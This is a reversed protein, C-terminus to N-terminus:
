KRGGISMRNNKPKEADYKGSVEKRGYLEDLEAANPYPARQTASHAVRLNNWLRNDPNSDESFRPDPVMPLRDMKTIELSIFDFDEVVKGLMLYCGLGKFPYHKLSNPFHVTDFYGGNVDIWTGFNMKTKGDRNQIPVDKISILYGVMRVVKNIHQPLDATYVHGRYNTKLLNFPSVSVPYGLSEIEDFADEYMDTTEEIEFSYRVPEVEFLSLATKKKPEKHFFRKAEIIMRGKGGEINRLAGAYIAYSIDDFNWETRRLINLMDKFPGSKERENCLQQIAKDSLHKIQDLGLYITNGELRANARSKNIEPAEITAGLLRAENIYVEPRYFGGNNNIVATIFELPYYAKLYLSQYSEVAYSASHSKCFSYGAFSAIQRYVEDVVKRDYGLAECNNFFQDKVKDMEQQSRSKGSMGRRLVDAEDLGLKAFHHAIKIVDEQYVMVGYTDSLQEEFVKHFYQIKKPDRHREVYERMMGSQAVGPRIISSAAVLTEYDNCRLRRLLGRMAPSEIYFCGLTKGTRLLENCKEDRKFSKTDAIDIKIGRNDKAIQVAEKIHGLGRQSLIDIKEMHIGEAIYMDIECTPVGKPYITMATYNAIPEETIYIGCSHMSLQNPFGELMNGYHHIQKVLHDRPVSNLSMRSLQDLEDKPLGFVKGLERVISRQKFDTITGCFGTHDRGFRKFIYDIIDDRDTWSWDIDFDPPSTRKTNLFRSFYLNLEIPDVETIKLCYAVISNAGSGRGVHFYGKSLSHRVIDWTTLFYCGFQMKHIVELEDYVRSLAKQNNPAYRDKFGELALTELLVKDEYYSSTYCKKNKSIKFDFPFETQDILQETNRIMEPYEQYLQKLMKPNILVENLTAQQQVKLHSLLVNHDICRLLRHLNYEQKNSYTVPYLCVLKQQKNLNPNKFKKLEFPKIGIFEHQQLITPVNDTPYLVFVHNFYPSQEPLPMEKLNTKTLLENIERFGQLNKALAVYLLRDGKRIEVGAIPKIGMKICANAFDLVGTTSNIDTLAMSEVGHQVAQQVLEEVPITGYRLSYFSHCNLFM